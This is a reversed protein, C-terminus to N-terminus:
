RVVSDASIRKGVASDLQIGFETLVIGFYSDRDAPVIGGPNRHGSTTAQYPQVFAISCDGCAGDFDCVARALSTTEQQERAWVCGYGSVAVLVCLLAPEM